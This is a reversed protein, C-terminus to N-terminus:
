KPCTQPNCTPAFSSYNPDSIVFQLVHIVFRLVVGETSEKIFECTCPFELLQYRSKCKTNSWSKRLLLIFESVCSRHQLSSVSLIQTTSIIEELLRWSMNIANSTQTERQGKLMEGMLPARKGIYGHYRRGSFEHQFLVAGKRSQHSACFLYQVLIFVVNIYFVSIKDLFLWHSSFYIFM